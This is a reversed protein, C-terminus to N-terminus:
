IRRSDEDGQAVGIPVVVNVKPVNIKAVPKRLEPELRDM